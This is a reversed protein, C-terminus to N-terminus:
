RRKVKCNPLMQQLQKIEADSPEPSDKPAYVLLEKLRALQRIAPLLKAVQSHHLGFLELNKLAPLIQSLTTVDIQPSEQIELHELNVLNALSAPVKAVDSLSLSTLTSLAGINDPLHFPPPEPQNLVAKERSVSLTKLHTLRSIIGAPFEEDAGLSVQLEYIFRMCDPPLQPLQLLEYLQYNNIKVYLCQQLPKLESEKYINCDFDNCSDNLFYVPKGMRQLFSLLTQWDNPTYPIGWHTLNIYFLNKLKTLSVPLKGKGTPSIGWLRPLSAIVEEMLEPYDTDLSVAAVNPYIAVPSPHLAEFLKKGQVNQVAAVVESRQGMRQSFYAIGEPTALNVLRKTLPDYWFGLRLTAHQWNAASIGPDDEFINWINWQIERWSFSAVEFPQGNETLNTPLVLSLSGGSGFQDSAFFPYSASLIDFPQSHNLDTIIGYPMVAAQNNETFYHIPLSYYITLFKSLDKEQGPFKKRIAKTVYEMRAMFGEYSQRTIMSDNEFPRIIGAHVALILSDTILAPMEVAYKIHGLKLYRRESRKFKIPAVQKQSARYFDFQTLGKTKQADAATFQYRPPAAQLVEPHAAFLQKFHEPSAVWLEEKSGEKFRIVEGDYLRAAWAESIMRQDTLDYPNKWLLNYYNFPNIDNEDVELFDVKRFAVLFFTNETKNHVEFYIGDDYSIVRQLRRNAKDWLFTEDIAIVLKDGANLDQYGLYSISQTLERDGYCPMTSSIAACPNIITKEWGRALDSTIEYRVQLVTTQPSVPTQGALAGVFALCLM